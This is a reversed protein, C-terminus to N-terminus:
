SRQCAPSAVSGSFAIARNGSQQGVRWLISALAGRVARESGCRYWEGRGTAARLAMHRGDHAAHVIVLVSRVLPWKGCDEARALRNREKAARMTACRRLQAERRTKARRM